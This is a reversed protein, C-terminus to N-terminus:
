SPIQTLFSQLDGERFLVKMSYNNHQVTITEKKGLFPAVKENGFHSFQFIDPLIHAFLTAIKFVCFSGSIM